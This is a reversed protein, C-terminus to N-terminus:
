SVCSKSDYYVSFGLFIMHNESLQIYFIYDLTVLSTILILYIFIVYRTGNIYGSKLKKLTTVMAVPIKGQEVFLYSRTVKSLWLLM